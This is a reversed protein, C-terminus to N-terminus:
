FLCLFPLNLRVSEIAKFFSPEMGPHRGIRLWMVKRAAPNRPIKGTM